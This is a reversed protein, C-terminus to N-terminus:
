KASRQNMRIARREEREAHATATQAVAVCFQRLRNKQDPQSMESVLRRAASATIPKGKKPELWGRIVAKRDSVLAPHDLQLVTVTVLGADTVGTVSGDNAFHFHKEASPSLPSVFPYTGPDYDAKAQAGYQCAEKSDSPPYCALINQYDITEAANKRSQPLFHEIHCSHRTDLNKAECEVATKLSKLTYACLHFQELLLAKRVSEAPFGGGGYILNLPSKANDHKWDILERPEAGKKISRM